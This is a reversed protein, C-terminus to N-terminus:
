EELLEFISIDYAHCIAFIDNLTPIIKYIEIASVKSQSIGIAKGFKEQSLHLSKRLYKVNDCVYSFDM